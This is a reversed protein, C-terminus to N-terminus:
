TREIDTTLTMENPPWPTGSSGGTNGDEGSAGGAIQELDEDKVEDNKKPDTNM